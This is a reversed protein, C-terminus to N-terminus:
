LELASFEGEAVTASAERVVTGLGTMPGSGTGSPPPSYPSFWRSLGFPVAM